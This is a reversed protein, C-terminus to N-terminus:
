LFHILVQSSQFPCSDLRWVLSSRFCMSSKRLPISPDCFKLYEQEMLEEAVRIAQEKYTVAIESSQFKQWSGDVTSKAGQTLMFNGLEYRIICHIMETAGNQENPLEVMSPHLSSDNVNLPLKTTWKMDRITQGVGSFESARAELIVIQWWLRRRIEIEFPPLKLDVGDRHLGMRQGIRVAVGTLTWLSHSDYRQRMSLLFLVYAQLVVSNSSKLLGASVLAQRVAGQFRNLIVPKSEGTINECETSSMSYVASSYISFVLSEMAMSINELDGTAELLDQQVTPAHLIHTMPHVNDLFKQWLRFGQIPPPHVSRLDPNVPSSGLILDGGHPDMTIEHPQSETDEDESSVPLIDSAEMFEDSLHTWLKNELFRTKGNKLIMKGREVPQLRGESGTTAHLGHSDWGGTPDWGGTVANDSAINMDEIRRTVDAENSVGEPEIKVGFGKLLEEYRRLRALLM